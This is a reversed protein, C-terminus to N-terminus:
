LLWLITHRYRSQMLLGFKSYNQFRHFLSGLWSWSQVCLCSARSDSVARVIVACAVRPKRVFLATEKQLNM